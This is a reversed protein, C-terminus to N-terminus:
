DQDVIVNDILRTSGLFAAAAILFQPKVPEEENGGAIYLEGIDEELPAFDPLRLCEFYQVRFGKQELSEVADALIEKVCEKSSELIREKTAKLTQYLFPALRREEPSLYVNRSSLALGDETRVTPVGVVKVELNLDQVMKQIVYFQQADKLGFYALNPKVLNFLKLVITTVGKFHGERFRGCLPQSLATEEVFTSYGRPYLDQVQPAFIVDAKERRATELDSEWTKPYKSLDENPGFQTPNLFISLVSHDCNPRIARMLRAHGEHLAGMTPVFGVTGHTCQRWEKLESLTRLVRPNLSDSSM